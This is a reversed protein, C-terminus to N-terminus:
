SGSTRHASHADVVDTQGRDPQVNAARGNRQIVGCAIRVYPGQQTFVVVGVPAGSQNVLNAFALGQTQASAAQQIGPMAAVFLLVAGVVPLGIAWLTSRARV